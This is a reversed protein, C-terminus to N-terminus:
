QKYFGRHIFKVIGTGTIINHFSDFTDYQLGASMIRVDIDHSLIKIIHGIHLRVSFPNCGPLNCGEISNRQLISDIRNILCSLYCLPKIASFNWRLLKASAMRLGDTMLRITFHDVTQEIMRPLFWDSPRQNRMKIGSSIVIVRITATMELGNIGCFDLTSPLYNFIPHTCSFAPYPLM